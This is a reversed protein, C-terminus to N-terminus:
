ISPGYKWSKFVIRVRVHGTERYIAERHAYLALQLLERRKSHDTYSIQVDAWMADGYEVKGVAVVSRHSGMGLRPDGIAVTRQM